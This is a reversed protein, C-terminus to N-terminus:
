EAPNRGTTRHTSFHRRYARCPRCRRECTMTRAMPGYGSHASVRRLRPEPARAAEPGRPLARGRGFPRPAGFSRDDLRLQLLTDPEGESNEEISV